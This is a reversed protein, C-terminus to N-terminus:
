SLFNYERVGREFVVREFVVVEFVVVEFVVYTQAKAPSPLHIVLMEMLAEAAPLWRQMARKLLVKQRFDMEDKKLKIGLQKFLKFCALVEKGTKKSVRKKETMVTDFVQYLPDMIFQVFGRKLKKSKNKNTFKKSKPNYFRAGWLNRMMVEEKIGFKKAYRHQQQQQEHTNTNSYLSSKKSYFSYLSSKKSCM